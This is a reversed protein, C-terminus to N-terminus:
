KNSSNATGISPSQQQQQNNLNQLLKSKEDLSFKGRSPSFAITWDPGHPQRLVNVKDNTTKHTFTKPKNPIIAEKTRKIEIANVSKTRSNFVRLFEVTDGPQLTVGKEVESEHFFIREDVNELQIFGYNSKIGDVIGDERQLQINTAKRSNSQKNIAIEFSVKDGKRLNHSFMKDVDEVDFELQENTEGIQYSIKGLSDSHHTNYSSSHTPWKIEKQVVGNVRGEIIEVFKVTNKPLIKPLVAVPKNNWSDTVVSFELELSEEASLHAISEESLISELESFHLYVEDIRNQCKIFGFYNKVSILVGIERPLEKSKVLVVNTAGRQKTKRNVVINFEVEDGPWV